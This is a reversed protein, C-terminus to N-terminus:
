ITGEYYGLVDSPNLVGENSTKENVFRFKGCLVANYPKGGPVKNIEPGWGTGFQFYWPAIKICLSVYPIPIYHKFSLAFQFFFAANCFKTYWTNIVRLDAIVWKGIKWVLKRDGMPVSWYTAPIPDTDNVPNNWQIYGCRLNFISYANVDRVIFPFYTDRLVEAPNRVFDEMNVSKGYIYQQWWAWHSNLWNIMNVFWIYEWLKM